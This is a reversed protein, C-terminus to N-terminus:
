DTFRMGEGALKDLNPTRSAMVGQHYAGLNFWGIDDGMIFVINPPQGTAQTAQQAQASTTIGSASLASAALASTGSLLLDRRKLGKAEQSKQQVGMTSGEGFPSVQPGVFPPLRPLM